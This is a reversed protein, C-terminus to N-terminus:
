NYKNLWGGPQPKNYNTFNTLQDLNELGKQEQRINGGQKLRTFYIRPVEYQQTAPNYKARPLTKGSLKELEEIKSNIDKIALKPTGTTYGLSNLNNTGSKINVEILGKKVMMAGADLTLPLSDTSLSMPSTISGSGIFNSGKPSAEVKRVAKILQERTKGLSQLEEIIQGNVDLVPNGSKDFVKVYDYNTGASNILGEPATQPDSYNIVGRSSDEGFNEAYSRGIKRVLSERGQPAATKIENISPALSEIETLDNVNIPNTTIDIKTKNLDPVVNKYKQLLEQKTVGLLRYVVTDDLKLIQKNINVLAQPDSLLKSPNWYMVNKYKGLERIAAITEQEQTTYIDPQKPLEKKGFSKKFEKLIDLDKKKNYISLKQAKTINEKISKVWTKGKPLSNAYAKALSQFEETTPKPGIGNVIDDLRKGLPSNMIHDNIKTIQERAATPGMIKELQVEYNYMISNLSSRLDGADQIRFIQSNNDSASYYIADDIGKILETLEGNKDTKVNQLYKLRDYTDGINGAVDKGFQKVKPAIKSLKSINQPLNKAGVITKAAINSLAPLAQYTLPNFAMAEWPSVNGMRQMGLTPTERFDGYSSINTNKLYNAAANGPMNLPAFVKLASIKSNRDEEEEQPTLGAIPFNLPNGPLLTNGIQQLGSLGESFENPNLQSSYESNILAERENPTLNYIWNDRKNLDFGRQKAIKELANTNRDYDYNANIDRLVTEPFNTRDIGFWNSEGLGKIYEDKKQNIFAERGNKKDYEARAKSLPTSKGKVVIEELEGGFMPINNEGANPVQIQGEKYIKAYEPSATNITEVKGEENKLKINKGEQAIPYETVKTGKLKYKGGPMMLKVDGTDSIALVNQTIPKGTKPDPGMDIYSGPESQDIETVQGPYDWQGRDDKIVGGDKMGLKKGVAKEVSHYGPITNFPNILNNVFQKNSKAGLGELGGTLLPVGVATILPMMSDQQVIQNPAAGLDSAMGGIMNLPNIWDDFFNPEDSVRFKSELGATSDEWNQRTQNESDFFGLGKNLPNADAKERVARREAAVAKNYAEEEAAIEAKTKNRVNLENLDTTILKKPTPIADNAVKNTERLNINYDKKVKKKKGLAEKIRKQAETFNFSSTNNNMFKKGPQLVRMGNQASAMTKKAYPGESPAPDNTRAYTFGPTGPISGGMAFQEQPFMINEKREVAPHRVTKEWEEAEQWTKFPGGLHEKTKRFEAIPDALPKGYKFSPILYAPEGNEGGISMARESSPTNYPIVYGEPLKDSTPQLFTLKGNQAQPVYNVPYVSGGGQFNSLLWQNAKKATNFVGDEVVEKATRILAQKWLPNAKMGFDFPILLSAADLSSNLLDLDEDNKTARSKYKDLDKPNAANYIGYAVHAPATFVQRITKAIPNTATEQDDKMELYSKTIPDKDQQQRIKFNFYKTRTEYDKASEGKLREPNNALEYKHLNVNYSKLAANYEGKTKYDKQLPKIPGGNQFQGGWAPSYNRGKMSYGEGEYGESVSTESDNYNEQHEQMTGGDAYQDLWGGNKMNNSNDRGCEHCIYMDKKSSDSKNWSWGCTCKVKGSSM